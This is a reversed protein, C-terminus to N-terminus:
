NRAYEDGTVIVSSVNMLQRVFHRGSFERILVCCV